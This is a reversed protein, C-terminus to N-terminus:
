TRGDAEQQTGLPLFKRELDGGDEDAGVRDIRPNNTRAGHLVLAVSRDYHPVSWMNIMPLPIM